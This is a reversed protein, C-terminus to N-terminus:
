SNDAKQSRTRMTRRPPAEVDPKAGTSSKRRKRKGRTSENPRFLEEKTEVDGAELKMLATIDKRLIVFAAQEIERASVNRDKPFTERLEAVAEFLDDYEKQSYKLSPRQMTSRRVDFSAQTMNKMIVAWAYLEDSFFPVSQPFATSLVLSATAPGVGKLSCLKKMAARVHSKDDKSSSSQGLGYTQFAEETIKRM